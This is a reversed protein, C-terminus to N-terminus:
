RTAKPKTVSIPRAEGSTLALESQLRLKDSQRMLEACYDIAFQLHHEMEKKASGVSKKAIARYIAEHSRLSRKRRALEAPSLPVVVRYFLPYIIRNLLHLRVIEKRILANRSAAVIILHFRVDRQADERILDQAEPTNTKQVTLKEHVSTMAELAQRLDALEAETRHAAALGAAYTELALRMGCVDAFENLGVTRVAPGLRSHFTVFGDAELKRLADRVPMRSVGIQESLKRSTLPAGPPYAGSIIKEWIFKYAIETQASDM